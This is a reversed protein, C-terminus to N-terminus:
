ASLDIETGLGRLRAQDYLLKGIALDQLGVGVSDFLTTDEESQRARVRGAVVAGLEGIVTDATIAGEEIALILDGSKALATPLSDVVVRSRSMAAADVERDTPRPRAGVANVHLGPAFWSGSVIPSVSPTLTCVVHSAEVVARPSEAAVVKVRYHATQARFAEVTAATRSWVHVTDIPLVQLMAELHAVALAGAGVLGLVSSGPRAMHRSAVASAAATRIRTPVRGDLLALTEGTDRDALIISSRQTALGRGKNDPIDSLLKSAVLGSPRSAATMVIYHAPAGPLHLSAPAPLHADGADLDAFAQELATITARMDAVSELESANLILTM